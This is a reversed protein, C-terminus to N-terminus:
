VIRRAIRKAWREDSNDRIIRALEAEPLRNVLEAATLLQSRDMRMDLPADLTMSFGREAELQASSFGLDHIVGDLEALGMEELVRTLDRFDARALRVRDGYEALVEASHRIAAEDRDIGVLIGHPASRKLIERAHGGGGLTCDAYVGGPRPSLLGVAENLLVPRHYEPMAKLWIM